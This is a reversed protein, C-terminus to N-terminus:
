RRVGPLGAYAASFIPAIPLMKASRKARTRLFRPPCPPASGSVTSAATGTRRSGCGTLLFFFRRLRRGDQDRLPAGRRAFSPM